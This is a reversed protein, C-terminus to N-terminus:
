FKRASGPKTRAVLVSPIADTKNLPQQSVFCNFWEICIDSSNLFAQVTKQLKNIEIEQKSLTCYVCVSNSSMQAFQPVSLGVCHCHMWASCAGECYITDEGYHSTM